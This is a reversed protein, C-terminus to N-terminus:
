KDYYIGVIRNKTSHNKKFSSIGIASDFVIQIIGKSSRKVILQFVIDENVFGKNKLAM